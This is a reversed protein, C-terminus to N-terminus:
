AGGLDGWRHQALAVAAVAATEARLIRPGLTALAFGAAEAQAAEAETFGGEPGTAVFVSRVHGDGRPGLAAAGREWFLLARDHGAAQRVIGSFDTVEAIQPCITRGSQAAAAAAIRRWRSVRSAFDGREPVTRRCTFPVVRSVGLETAKEVVWDLKAGKTIAVALTLTLPSESRREIACRVAIDAAGSGIATIEALFNGGEGDFIEIRAGPKLRLVDRLHRLEAGRLRIAGSRLQEKPVRVRHM